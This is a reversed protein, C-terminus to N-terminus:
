HIHRGRQTKGQLNLAIKHRTTGSSECAYRDAIYKLLYGAANGMGTIAQAEMMDGIFATLFIMRMHPFLLGAFTM